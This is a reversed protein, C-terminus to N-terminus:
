ISTAAIYATMKKNSLCKIGIVKLMAEFIIFQGEIEIQWRVRHSSPATSYM